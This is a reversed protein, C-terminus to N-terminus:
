TTPLSYIWNGPLRQEITSVQWLITGFANLPDISDGVVYRIAGMVLVDGKRLLTPPQTIALSTEYPAIGELDTTTTNPTDAIGVTIAQPIYGEYTRSGVTLQWGGGSSPGDTTLVQSRLTDYDTAPVAGPTRETIHQLWIVTQAYAGIVSYADAQMMALDRASLLAM